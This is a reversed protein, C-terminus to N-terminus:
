LTSTLSSREFLVIVFGGSIGLFVANTKFLRLGHENILTRFKDGVRIVRFVLITENQKSQAAIKPQKDNAM